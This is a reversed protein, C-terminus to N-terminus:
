LINVVCIKPCPRCGYLRAVVLQGTNKDEDIISLLVSELSVYTITHCLVRHFNYDNIVWQILM